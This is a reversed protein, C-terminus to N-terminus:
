SKRLGNLNVFCPSRKKYNTMMRFRSNKNSIQMNDSKHFIQSLSPCTGYIIYLTDESFSGLRTRRPGGRLTTSAPFDARIGAPFARFVARVPGQPPSPLRTKRLFVTEPCHSKFFAHFRDRQCEACISLNQFIIFITTPPLPFHLVKAGAFSLFTPRPFSPLKRSNKSLKFALLLFDSASRGRPPAGTLSLSLFSM